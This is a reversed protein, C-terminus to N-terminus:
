WGAFRSMLEALPEMVTKLDLLAQSLAEFDVAGMSQLSEDVQQAMGGIDDSLSAWDVRSLKQAVEGISEVAEQLQVVNVVIVVCTIVVAVMIIALFLMTLRNVKLQKQLLEYSTEM